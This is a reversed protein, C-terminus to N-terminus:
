AKTSFIDAPTPLRTSCERRWPGAARRWRRCPVPRPRAPQAGAEALRHHVAMIAVRGPGEPQCLGVVVHRPPTKLLDPQLLDRRLLETRRSGAPHNGQAAASPCGGQQQAGRAIDGLAPM